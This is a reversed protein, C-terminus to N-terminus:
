NQKSKQDDDQDEQDEEHDHEHSDHCDSHSECLHDYIRDHHDHSVKMTKLPKRFKLYMIYQDGTLTSSEFKNIKYDIINKLRESLLLSKSLKSEDLLDVFNFVQM